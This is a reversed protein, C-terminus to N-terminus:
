RIKNGRLELKRRRRALNGVHEWSSGYGMKLTETVIIVRECMRWVM